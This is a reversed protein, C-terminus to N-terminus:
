KRKGRPKKGAKPRWLKKGAKLFVYTEDGDFDVGAGLFRCGEAVLEHDRKLSYSLVM